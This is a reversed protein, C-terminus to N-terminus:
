KKGCINFGMHPEMSTAGAIAMEAAGDAAYEFARESSDVDHAM